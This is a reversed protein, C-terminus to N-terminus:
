AARGTDVLGASSTCGGELGAWVDEGVLLAQQEDEAEEDTRTLLCDMLERDTAFEVIALMHAADPRTEARWRYLSRVSAGLERALTRWTLGSAARLRELRQAFDEPFEAGAPRYNSTRAGIM